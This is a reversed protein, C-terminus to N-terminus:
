LVDAKCQGDFQSWTSAVPDHFLRSYLACTSGEWPLSQRSVRSVLLSAFLCHTSPCAKAVQHASGTTDGLGPIVVPPTTSVRTSRPSTM